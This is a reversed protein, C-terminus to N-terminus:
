AKFMMFGSNWNLSYYYNVQYINIDEGGGRGVVNVISNIFSIVILLFVYFIVIFAYKNIKIGFNQCNITWLRRIWLDLQLFFFYSFIDLNQLINSKFYPLFTVPPNEDSPNILSFSKKERSAHTIKIKVGRM